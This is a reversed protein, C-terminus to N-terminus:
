EKNGILWEHADDLRAFPFYRVKGTTFIKCFGVMWKQWREEGIIAL